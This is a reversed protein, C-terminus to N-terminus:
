LLGTQNDTTTKQCGSAKGDNQVFLNMKGGNYSKQEDTYDHLPNCTVSNSRDIRHPQSLNPNNPPLLNRTLLNNVTPTGQASIFSPENHPNTAQPYTGFYHDFSNNEQFIVIIHKIPTRTSNSTTATANGTTITSHGFTTTIFPRFHSHVFGNTFHRFPSHTAADTLAIVIHVDGVVVTSAVATLAIVVLAALSAVRHKQLGNILKNM